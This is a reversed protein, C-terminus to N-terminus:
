HGVAAKRARVQFIRPCAVTTRPDETFATLEAITARVEEESALGEALVSDAINIMTSLSLAKEPVCVCHTPQVLAAHVDELGADLCLGYLKAGVNADGGRRAIVQVYLECYRSYAANAPYCFCGSFDIDELLLTGSPRLAQCLRAIFAPRGALHSVIFRGYVLDFRGPDSWASADAARYEVNRLGAREAETRATALKVPDFDVGVVRGTPGVLTALHRSVHGAGCGMDLCTMGSAIGASALFAETTPGLTQALLDLRRAGEEGGRIAYTTPRHGGGETV